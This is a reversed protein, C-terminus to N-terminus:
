AASLPIKRYLVSFQASTILISASCNIAQLMVPSGIVGFAVLGVGFFGGLVFGFMISCALLTFTVYNM